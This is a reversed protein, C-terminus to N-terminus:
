HGRLKGWMRSLLALYGDNKPIKQIQHRTHTPSNHIKKALHSKAPKPRKCVYNSYVATGLPRLTPNPNSENIHLDLQSWYRDKNIRLFATIPRTTAYGEDYLLKVSKNDNRPSKFDSTKLTGKNNKGSMHIFRGTLTPTDYETVIGVHGNFLILDGPQVDAAGVTTYAKSSALTGTGEYDIRYGSELLVHCYSGQAILISAYRPLIEMWSAM